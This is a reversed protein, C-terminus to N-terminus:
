TPITNGTHCHPVLCAPSAAGSSSCSADADGARSVSASASAALSHFLEQRERFHGPGWDFMSGRSSRSIRANMDHSRELDVLGGLQQSQAVAHQFDLRRREASM